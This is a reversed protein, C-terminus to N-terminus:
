IESKREANKRRSQLVKQQERASDRLKLPVSKVLMSIKEPRKRELEAIENSRIPSRTKPPNINAKRGDENFVKQSELLNQPRRTSQHQIKEPSVSRIKDHLNESKKEKATQRKSSPSREPKRALKMEVRDSKFKTEIKPKPSKGLSKKKQSKNLGHHDSKKRATPSQRKRKNHPSNDRM